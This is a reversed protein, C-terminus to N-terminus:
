QDTELYKVIISQVKVFVNNSRHTQLNDLLDIIGINFMQEMLETKFDFDSEMTQMLSEFIELVVMLEKENRELQFFQKFIELFGENLIGKCIEMNKFRMLGSILFLSEFVIDKTESLCWDLVLYIINKQSFISLAMKTDCLVHNSLIWLSQIRLM